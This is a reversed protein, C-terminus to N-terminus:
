LTLCRRGFRPFFSPRSLVTVLAVAVAEIRPIIAPNLLGASGSLAWIVFLAAIVSAQAAYITGSSRM